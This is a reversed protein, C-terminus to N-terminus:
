ALIRTIDRQGDLVRLVQVPAANRHVILYRGAVTLFRVRRNTLDTRRHGMEPYEALLAFGDYLADLLRKAAAPDVEVLYSIIQRIDRRAAVTIAYHGSM